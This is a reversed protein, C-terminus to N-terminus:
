RGYPDDNPKSSVTSSGQKNIIDQFAVAFYRCSDSAHSSWDHEPHSKYVQNKEDWEKHYSM